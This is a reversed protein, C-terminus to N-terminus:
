EEETKVFEIDEGAEIANGIESLLNAIGNFLGAILLDDFKQAYDDCLNVQKELLDFNVKIKM